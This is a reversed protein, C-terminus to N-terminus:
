EEGAGERSDSPRGRRVVLGASGVVMLAGGLWLWLVGPRRHVILAVRGDADLAAIALLLDETLGTRLAMEANPEGRGTYARLEPQLTFTRQGRGVQFNAVYAVHGPREVIEEGTFTLDVGAAHGSEEPALVIREDRSFGESITLAVLVVAVGAHVAVMGRGPRGRTRGSLGAIGRVLGWVASGLLYVATMGPVGLLVGVMMRRGAAPLAEGVVDGLLGLVYGGLGLAIAAGGLGLALASLRRAKARGSTLMCGWLLGGLLVAGPVAMRDYFTRTLTPIAEGAGTTSGLVGAIAPWWSGVLVTVGLGGLLTVVLALFWDRAEFARVTAATLARWRWVVLMASALAVVSTCGLLPGALPSQAFAHVSTVLGGRALVVGLLCLVFTVFVLVVGWVPQLRRRRVLALAHLLATASLWPILSANEVPDWSWYGGWGLEVYAWQMGLCIGLTLLGWAAALWARAQRLCEEISEGTVLGAAVLAAPVAFVLYGLYLTPPHFIMQVNQLLPNLGMGEAPPFRQTVFPDAVLVVVGTFFCVLSALFAHAVMRLREGWGRGVFLFLLSLAALLLTWFLLSGNQGAWLASFAYLWSLDTSTYADVYLLRFDRALLAATLIATALVLAVFAAVASGVAAQRWVRARFRASLVSCCASGASLLFAATLAWGALRYM